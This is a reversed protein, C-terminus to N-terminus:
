RGKFTKVLTVADDHGVGHLAFRLTVSSFITVDRRVEHARDVTAGMETEVGALPVGTDRAIVQVLEAACAAVGGLFLEAPTVAEGLCGNQVPGDVVLHNGRASLLVRGFTATSAARVVYDHAM